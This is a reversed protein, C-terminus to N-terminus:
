LIHFMYINEWGTFNGASLVSKFFVRSSLKLIYTHTSEIKFDILGTASCHPSPAAAGSQVKVPAAIELQLHIEVVGIPAGM